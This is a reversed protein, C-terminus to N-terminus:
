GKNQKSVLNAIYPGEIKLVQHSEFQSQYINVLLCTKLRALDMFFFKSVFKM